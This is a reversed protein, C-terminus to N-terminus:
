SDERTKVTSFCYSIETCEIEVYKNCKRCYTRHNDGVYKAPLAEFFDDEYWATVQNCWPCEIGDWHSTSDIWSTDSEIKTMLQRNRMVSLAFVM